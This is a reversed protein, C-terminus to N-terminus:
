QVAGTIQKVRNWGDYARTIQRTLAGTADKSQESTRNGMADLVYTISNGLTNRVGILRHADDYTNYIASGDPLTVQTVQGAGDYDYSTTESGVTVTSIWGRATYSLDTALGNPDTIRGARGNADYNSYTTVHGAANTQTSLNGQADYTFTSTANVGTRPGKATLVHGFNDYTYTWVQPKGSLVANFGATGTADTTAQLTKTLVNGAADYSFTTRRLPESIRAPLRFTPHWETQITRAVTTGSAEIRQTELNRSLDFTYATATGDYDTYRAINGNADYETSASAPIYPNLVSQRSVSTQRLVGLINSYRYTYTTNLPDTMWTLPSNPYTLTYKEVAGAHETSTAHRQSDYSFTAYRKGNEDIIGTLLRANTLNSALAPEDYIYTRSKGDPYTVKSLNQSSEYEYATVNGAPDSMTAMSGKDNYTFQLARGFPDQVKLLYGARPAIEPPTDTDSYVFTTVLGNRDTKSLLRGDMSFLETTENSANAVQWGIVAGSSDVVQQVRDNVDKSPSYDVDSGFHTLRGAGRRVGFSKPTGKGAYPYCYDKTSGPERGIFCAFDPSTKAAKNTFDIGFIQYNHRWM